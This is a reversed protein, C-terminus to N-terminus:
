IRILGHTLAKVVAFTRNNAGLKAYIHRLHTNVTHRSIMFINAIEDDSKGVAAWTLIDRERNTLVINVATSPPKAHLKKYATYFHNCLATILDEQFLSADHKESTALSIGALQYNHGRLAISVGNHLGAERGMNLCKQQLASLEVHDAIEQWAFAAPQFAGYTIVPDIKDLGHQLYYRIWDDPYNQVIGVQAKLDLDIHDTLLGFHVRDYGYQRVTSVFIEFLQEPTSAGNAKDLYDEFSMM